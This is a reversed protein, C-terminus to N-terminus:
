RLRSGPDRTRLGHRRSRRHFTEAVDCDALHRRDQAPVFFQALDRLPPPVPLPGLRQALGAPLTGGAFTKAAAAMETHQFARAMVRSFRQGEPTTGLLFRNAEEILFH